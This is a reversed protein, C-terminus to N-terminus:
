SLLRPAEKTKLATDKREQCRARPRPLHGRDLIQVKQRSRFYSDSNYTIFLPKTCVLIDDGKQAKM